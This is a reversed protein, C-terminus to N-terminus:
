TKLNERPSNSFVYPANRANDGRNELEGICGAARKKAKSQEIRPGAKWCLEVPGSRSQDWVQPDVLNIGGTATAKGGMWWTMGSCCSPRGTKNACILYRM